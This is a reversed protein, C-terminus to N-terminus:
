PRPPILYHRDEKKEPYYVTVLDSDDKEVYGTLSQTNRGRKLKEEAAAMLAIAVSEQVWQRHEEVEEKTKYDFYVVEKGDFGVEYKVGNKQFRVTEYEKKFKRKSVAIKLIFRPLTESKELGKESIVVFKSKEHYTILEDVELASLVYNTGQKKSRTILRHRNTRCMEQFSADVLAKLLERKAAELDKM